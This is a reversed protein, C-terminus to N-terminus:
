MTQVKKLVRNELELEKFRIRHVNVTNFLYAALAANDAHFEKKVKENLECASIKSYIDQFVFPVRIDTYWDLVKHRYDFHEKFFTIKDMIRNFEKFVENFAYVRTRFTKEFKERLNERSASDQRPRIIYIVNPVQLVRDASCMCEFCFPVDESTPIHSFFIQNMLLFNRRAFTTCTAWRYKFDLWIKLREELEFPMLTPEPVPDPRTSLPWLWNTFSLNAPNTLENMDTMRPDDASLTKGEYLRFSDNMHVIDAQFEEALTTLEELGTSTYLDDSDLLAIYKGRAFKIGVNRPLGPTGTNKRLKIVNIGGGRILNQLM